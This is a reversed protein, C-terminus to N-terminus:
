LEFLLGPRASAEGNTIRVVKFVMVGLRLIVDCVQWYALWSLVAERMRLACLM